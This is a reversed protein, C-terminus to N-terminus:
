WAVSALVVLAIIIVAVILLVRWAGQLVRLVAVFGLCALAVLALTIIYGDM